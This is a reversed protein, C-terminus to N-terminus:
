KILKAAVVWPHTLLISQANFNYDAINYSTCIDIKVSTHPHSYNHVVNTALNLTWNAFTVTM